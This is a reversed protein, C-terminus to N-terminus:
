TSVRLGFLGLLILEKHSPNGLYDLVPILGPFKDFYTESMLIGLAPLVMGVSLTELAMGVIIVPLLLLM